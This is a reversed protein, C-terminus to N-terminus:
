SAERRYREIAGVLAMVTRHLEDPNNLRQDIGPADLDDIVLYVAPMAAASLLPVPWEEVGPGHRDFETSLGAVLLGALRLARPLAARNAQGWAHFGIDALARSVGAGARAPARAVIARPAAAKGGGADYHVSLFLDAGAMNAAEARDDDSVRGAYDRTLVVRVRLSDELQRALARCLLLTLEGEKQGGSTRADDDGGGGPDLVVVRLALTDSLGSEPYPTFRRERVAEPDDTLAVELRPPRDLRQVSYGVITDPVAFSVAAGAGEDEVALALFRDDGAPARVSDPDVEAGPLRIVTRARTAVEVRWDVARDLQLQLRSDPGPNTLRLAKLGGRAAGVRLRRAAPEWSVPAPLWPYARGSADCLAALPVYIDGQRLLVPGTLHILEQDDLRAMESGVAMLLRHGGLKLTLKQVEPRWAYTARLLASIDAVRLWAEAGGALIPLQEAPRGDGYLVTATTPALKLTAYEQAAVVAPGGARRPWPLSLALLALCVAPWAVGRSM